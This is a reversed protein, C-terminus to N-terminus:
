PLHIANRKRSAFWGAAWALAALGSILAGARFANDQYVLRVQHNGPGVQLAQFAYNARLLPQPHGDVYAHWPHYYTQSLVVLSPEFAEVQLDIQRPTFQQRVVRARTPSNISLGGKSEPPLLVIQRPDFAGNAVLALAHNEDAFVPKQGATALEMFNTRPRWLNHPDAQEGRVPATQQSVSLFDALAPPIPNTSGYLVSYLEGSARPYLSFFGNVKPVGDLLNCDSFYAFRKILFNQKPDKLTLQLFKKEDLPQVMARSGGLAPQPNMALQKRALDQQYIWTPVTPNQPPEHTWVDLWLLLLLLGALVQGLMPRSSRGSALLLITVLVLFGVRSLNRLTLPFDDLPFPWRWAWFLIGAILVLLLSAVFLLRRHWARSDNGALGSRQALPYAALLPVSFVAVAVFKVPYTILSLQPILHRLWRSPLTQDGCALVLGIFTALTLLWVRWQRVTWIALLGLLLAGIGLYYSSTWFQGHQFFLDENWTKGFVMPALFNVWGWAPMSWRADAYGQQRESHAALDLFPVIQVATLAAVLAVLLPFRWLAAAQFGGLAVSPEPGRTTAGGTEPRGSLWRIAQVGWLAAALLWTLLITEPGGALMQLAGIVAAVLLRRGGQSWALEASWVVWPMWSLTAIHSPWMLLNLSFGNFAFIVGAVSAGLRHGTWRYALAYMGLGAWFLHLLCFFSLSWTLPFLLYILAPPYLPMTNWQALFPVGCNNYPNWLPLEGHWFCEQQYHALPFAFFGYDRIVFTELGLVVQPFSVFVLVTLILAFRGPTLWAGPEAAPLRSPEIHTTAAPQQM